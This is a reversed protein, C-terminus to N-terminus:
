DELGKGLFVFKILSTLFHQFLPFCDLLVFYYYNLWSVFDCAKLEEELARPNSGQTPFIGQLLFYCGLVTGKGPFDWPCVSSSGM